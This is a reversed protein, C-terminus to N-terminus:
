SRHSPSVQSKKAAEKIAQIGSAIEEKRKKKAALFLEMREKMKKINDKLKKSKEAARALRKFSSAAFSSAIAKSTGADKVKEKKRRLPPVDEEAEVERARIPRIKRKTASKKKEVM